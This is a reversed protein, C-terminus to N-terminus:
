EIAGEEEEGRKIWEMKRKRRVVGEVDVGKEKEEKGKRRKMDKKGKEEIEGKGRRRDEEVM